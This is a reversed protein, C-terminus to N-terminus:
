LEILTMVLKISIHWGYFKMACLTGRQTAQRASFTGKKRLLLMGRRFDPFFVLTGDSSKYIKNMLNRMKGILM